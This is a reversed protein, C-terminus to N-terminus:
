ALTNSFKVRKSARKTAAPESGPRKRGATDQSSQRLRAEAEADPIPYPQTASPAIAGVERPDVNISATFGESLDRARRTETDWHHAHTQRIHQFVNYKWVVPKQKTAPDTDCLECQLPVNTSPM